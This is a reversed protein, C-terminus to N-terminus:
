CLKTKLSIHSMGHFLNCIIFLWCWLAFQPYWLRRPSLIIWSNVSITKEFRTILLFTQFNVPYITTTFTLWLLIFNIRDLLLAVIQRPWTFFWMFSQYYQWLFCWKILNFLIKYLLFKKGMLLVLYFNNSRSARFVREMPVNCTCVAWSRFYMIITLKLVNIAPLLPCFFAGIWIVAQNNCLALM